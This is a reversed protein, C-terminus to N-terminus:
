CCRKATSARRRMRARRGAAVGDFDRRQARRGRHQRWRRDPCRGTEVLAVATGGSEREALVALHEADKAFPVARLRGTLTGNATLTLRDGHAGPACSM